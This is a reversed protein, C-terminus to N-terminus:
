LKLQLGTLTFMKKSLKKVTIKNLVMITERGQRISDQFILTRVFSDQEGATRRPLKFHLTKLHKGSAVFFYAILPWEEKVTVWLLIRKYVARSSKAKLELKWCKKKEITEQPSKEDFAAFYDENWRMQSLDGYSAEGMLKQLPTIRVARRSRPSYFWMKDGKSLVKQGRIKSGKFIVLSDLNVDNLVRLEKKSHEIGNRFSTLTIHVESQVKPLRLNDVKLVVLNPDPRTTGKALSSMILILVIFLLLGTMLKFIRFAM